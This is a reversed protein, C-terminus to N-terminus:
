RRVRYALSKESSEQSGAEGSREDITEYADLEKKSNFALGYIRTLMANKEDGRWYAGALHSLKFSDPAIDKAPSESHGGRCLDTFYPTPNLTYPTPTKNDPGATYLTVPEKRAVIESILELKYPNNKISRCAEKESVEKGDITKWSLLLKRMRKEIDKLDARRIPKASNLIM